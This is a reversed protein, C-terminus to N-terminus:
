FSSGPAGPSSPDWGSSGSTAADPQDSTGWVIHQDSTTGVNTGWVIHSGWVSEDPGWVLDSGPIARPDLPLSNGWPRGLAWIAQNTDILPGSIERTGWIFRQAWISTEGAFWTSPAVASTLWYWGTPRGPDIAAALAVAGAANLAGAGQTLDDYEVGYQDRMRLATYELIAKVAAPTLSPAFPHATHSAALVLAAAGSAVGTAMSTGSLRLYSTGVHAAPYQTYLTSGPAADSVAHHGPAVIDPKAFGDYWSPGRSSYPAILDDRRTITDQTMVAGVTIASPANGPSAIGGYGSEGTASNYGYNGAAVVVVIGARTAAEVARVLPDRAAPEYIPHGLSLNIVQIGTLGGTLTAFEIARVVDSTIGAGNADLVKMGILRVQPGLGQYLAGASLSGTSAILGAVHTGHGYDDFPATPLVGNTFNYFGVIRNDFDPTSAIGSDIVAVVVASGSPNNPPLGLTARLTYPPPPGDATAAVVADISISTVAASCLLSSLGPGDVTTVVANIGPLDGLIADGLGTVLSDVVSLLGPAASVIVQIRGPSGGQVWELVAADSNASSPAACTTSSLLPLSIGPLQASLGRATLLLMGVVIVARASRSILSM